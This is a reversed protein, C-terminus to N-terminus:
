EIKACIAVAAFQDSADNPGSAGRCAWGNSTPYSQTIWPDSGAGQPRMRCGGGVVKTGNPCSVTNNYHSGQIGTIVQTTLAGVGSWTPHGSSNDKCVELLNNHFRTVGRNANNCTISEDGIRIAGSSSLDLRARPTNTGIGVKGDGTLILKESETTNDNRETFFRLQPVSTNSSAQDINWHQSSSAGNSHSFEIRPSVGSAQTGTGVLLTGQVNLDLYSGSPSPYYTTITINEEAHACVALFFALFILALTKM